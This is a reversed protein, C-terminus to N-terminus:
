FIVIFCDKCGNSQNKGFALIQDDVTVTGLAARATSMKALPVLSLQKEVGRSKPSCSPSEVGSESSDKRKVESDSHHDGNTAVTVDTPPSISIPQSDIPQQQPPTRLSILSLRDAVM